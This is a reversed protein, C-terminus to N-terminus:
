AGSRPSIITEWGLALYSLVQRERGALRVKRHGIGVCETLDVAPGPEGGEATGLAVLRDVDALVTSEGEDGILYVLPPGGEEVGSVVM